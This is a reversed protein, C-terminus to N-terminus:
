KGNHLDRTTRGIRMALSRGMHVGEPEEEDEDGPGEDEEDRSAENGFVVGDENLDNDKMNAESDVLYRQLAQSTDGPSRGYAKLVWNPLDQSLRTYLDRRDKYDDSLLIVKGKGLPFTYRPAYEAIRDSECARWLAQVLEFGTWLLAPSTILLPMSNLLRDLSRRAWGRRVGNVGSYGQILWAEAQRIIGAHEPVRERLAHDILRGTVRDALGEMIVTLGGALNGVMTATESSGGNNRTDVKDLYDGMSLLTQASRTKTFEVYWIALFFAALDPDVGKVGPYITYLREPYSLNEIQSPSPSEISPGPAESGPSSPGTTTDKGSTPNVRLVSGLKLMRELEGPGEAPGILSPTARAIIGLAKRWERHWSPEECLGFRVCLLWFNRWTQTHPDKQTSLDEVAMALSPLLRGLEQCSAQSSLKSQRQLLVGKEVFLGLLGQICAQRMEKGLGRSAKALAYVADLASETLHQNSATTLQKGVHGLIQQVEGLVALTAGPCTALEVLGLLITRDLFPSPPSGLRRSLVSTAHALTREGGIAVASATIARVVCEGMWDGQDKDLEKTDYLRNVM